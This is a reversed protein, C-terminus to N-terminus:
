FLSTIQISKTFVQSMLYVKISGEYTFICGQGPQLILKSANKIEDNRKDFKRFLEWEQPDDWQIVTRFQNKTSSIIGM